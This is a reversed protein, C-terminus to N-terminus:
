LKVKEIKLDWWYNKIRILNIDYKGRVQRNETENLYVIKTINCISYDLSFDIENMWLENKYHATAQIRNENMIELVYYM